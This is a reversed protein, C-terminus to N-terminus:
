TSLTSVITKKARLATLGPGAPAGSLSRRGECRRPMGDSFLRTLQDAVRGADVEHGRFLGDLALGMHVGFM